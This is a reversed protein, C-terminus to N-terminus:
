NELNFFLILADQLALLILLKLSRKIEFVLNM